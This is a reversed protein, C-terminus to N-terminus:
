WRRRNYIYIWGSLLFNIGCILGPAFDEFLWVREVGSPRPWVTIAKVMWLVCLFFAWGSPFTRFYNVLLVVFQLATLLYMQWDSIELIYLTILEAVVVVAAPWTIWKRLQNENM